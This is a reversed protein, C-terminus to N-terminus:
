FYIRYLLSVNRGPEPLIEKIRSLHNYYTENFINEAQLSFTHLIDGTQFQYQGFLDFVVYGPTPTEFEGTRTQGAAIRSTAGFAFGRNNYSLTINSQLPPIKPLPRWEGFEEQNESSVKRRALVYSISGSAEFYESLRLRLSAEFGYFDAETGTYQYVNLTPFRTSPRGTNRPFIYNGFANQYFSVEASIAASQYEFFLEKGFAREANLDPNGVEFSYSALHPGLSYLEVVSPARFSHFLVGGVSFHDSFNYVVSGSSSLATFTRERIAGIPSDPDPQLPNRSVYDFRLGAKVSFAGFSTEEILYSSFSYSDTTPTQAGNVALNSMEGWVGFTGENIFGMQAHRLDISATTTLLGFETGTIGGPEVERHYYNTYAVDTKLSRFFEDGFLIESKGKLQYSRLEINVGHEHGGQPDPPIGYHNMYYSASTGAYGWPQIYSIGLTNNTSLIGTNPIEGLPTQLDAARRFSSNLQAAFSGLPAQLGLSAASGYNVTSGQISGNGQIGAPMSAPIQHSVVNIVGGIANSGFKLAAPGRAIEIKEASIPDIAVAHDASQGSVDGTRIGDELIIVRKGGLGRIVPRAPAAGLSRTSVGPIEELTAALTTSLNKRLAKGDLEESAGEIESGIIPNEATVTLENLNLVAPIMQVTISVTDDTQVTIQRKFDRYGIRSASLTYIGPPIDTFKFYGTVNAADALGLEELHLYAYSLPEGTESDIVRGELLASNQQSFATVPFIFAFFIATCFFTKIIKM